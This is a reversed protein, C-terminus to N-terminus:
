NISNSAGFKHETFKQMLLSCLSIDLFKKPESDYIIVVFMDSDMGNHYYTTM